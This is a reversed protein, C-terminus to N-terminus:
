ESSQHATCRQPHTGRQYSTTTRAHIRRSQVLEALQTTLPEVADLVVARVALPSGAVRAALWLLSLSRGACGGDDQRSNWFLRALTTCLGIWTLVCHELSLLSDGRADLRLLGRRWLLLLAGCALLRGDLAQQVLRMRPPHSCDCDSASLAGWVLYAVACAAAPPWERTSAHWRHASKHKSSRQRM